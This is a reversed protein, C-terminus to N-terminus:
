CPHLLEMKVTIANSGPTVVVKNDNPVTIPDGCECDNTDSDLCGLIWLTQADIPESTWAIASPGGNGSLDLSDSEFDVLSEAGDNMGIATADDERYISGRFTGAPAESMNDILDDDMQFSLYLTAPGDDVPATDGGTDAPGSDGSGATCALFTLLVPEGSPACVIGPRAGDGTSKSGAFAWLM